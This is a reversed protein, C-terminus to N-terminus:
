IQICILALPTYESEIFLSLNLLGQDHGASKEHGALKHHGAAPTDASAERPAGQSLKPVPLFNVTAAPPRCEALLPQVDGAHPQDAAPPASEGAADSPGNAPPPAQSGGGELRTAGFLTSKGGAQQLVRNAPPPLCGRSPPQSVDQLVLHGQDPPGKGNV